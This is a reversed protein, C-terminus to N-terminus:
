ENKGSGSYGSVIGSIPYLTQGSCIEIFNILIPNDEGILRKRGHVLVIDLLDNQSLIAEARKKQDETLVVAKSAIPCKERSCVQSLVPDSCGYVYQGQAASKVINDLEQVDLSPTNLRNWDKMMKQVTQPQYKWFNLPYSALRIGYENRLGETSGKSLSNICPPNQGKYAKAGLDERDFWVQIKKEVKVGVFFLAEYFSSELDEVTTLDNDNLRRYNLSPWCICLKGQGLLELAVENHLASVTQVRTRSLYLYHLGGSPTQEIRTIPLKRLAEKGKEMAEQSVNKVDFDIACFFLGNDLKTGCIVAYQSAETWPLDNFEQETQRENIWKQWEHLPKKEKLLVVNCGIKWYQASAEKITESM